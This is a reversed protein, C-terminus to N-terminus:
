WVIWGSAKYPDSIRPLKGALLHSFCILIFYIEFSVSEKIISFNCVFNQKKAASFSGSAAFVVGLYIYQQVCEINQEKFKIEINRIRGAKNFVLVKTKKINVSM